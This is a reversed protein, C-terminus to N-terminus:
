IDEEGRFDDDNLTASFDSYDIRFDEINIRSKPVGTSGDTEFAHPANTPIVFVIGPKLPSRTEKKTKVNVEVCCGNGRIVM